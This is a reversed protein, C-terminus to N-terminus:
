VEPPTFEQVDLQKLVEEVVTAFAKIVRHDIQGISGIRFSPRRALAGACILYGRQRLGEQFMAFDWKTDRPSLFCQIIPGAETDALLPTFGMARMRTITEEANRQYRARRMGIGGEAELERLAQRLAVLAHTPPTFRFHGDSELSQWQAHLDHVMSHSKGAAAILHERKLIIISFGPVGELCAEPEAVLADIHDGVMDLLLAGFSASADVMFTKGREKLLKGIDALPNVLGSSTECHCLWVHSIDSDADLAAAVEGASLAAGDPKDLNVIHRELAALMTAARAGDRGSNIVLTKKRKAPALCALVAEAAYATPGPLLVCEHSADAGALRKLDRRLDTVMARFEPDDTGHDGLMAIKVARSTTVPGPTLLYPLDEQGPPGKFRPAVFYSNTM